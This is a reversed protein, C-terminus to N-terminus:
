HNLWSHFSKLATAGTGVATSVTPSAPSACDGVAYIGPRSTRCERDVTVYGTRDLDVVGKLLDTNPEVGIRILIVDAPVSEIAGTRADEVTLGTVHGDGNIARVVTGTRIVTDPQARVQEVFEERASFGDRRHILTVSRAHEGLILVNEFAADGGGIIVVEKDRASEADRKGSSIIGKGRFEDEGPVGLRRRRVGTAAIIGRARFVTGSALRVSMANPDITAVADGLVPSLGRGALQEAFVDRLERGNRSEAGLHNTIPNFTSLLQGGPEPESELIVPRLGLEHAWLAASMGAPGCGIIIVDFGTDSSTMLATMKPWVALRHLNPLCAGFGTSRDFDTGAGIGVTIVM